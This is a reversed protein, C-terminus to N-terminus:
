PKKKNARKKGYVHVEIPPQLVEGYGPQPKWDFTQAFFDARGSHEFAVGSLEADEGPALFGSADGAGLIVDQNELLIAVELRFREAELSQVELERRRVDRLANAYRRAPEGYATVDDHLVLTQLVAERAQAAEMVLAAYEARVDDQAFSAVKATLHRRAQRQSAFDVDVPRRFRPKIWAELDDFDNKDAGGAEIAASVTARAASWRMDHLLEGWKAIAERRDFDPDTLGIHWQALGVDEAHLVKSPDSSLMYVAMIEALYEMDRQEDSGDGEKIAEVYASKFRNEATRRERCKARLYARQEQTMSGDRVVDNAHTSEHRLYEGFITARGVNKAGAYFIITTRGDEDDGATAQAHLVPDTNAVAPGKEDRFEIVGIDEVWGKPFTALLREMREKTMEPDLGELRIDPMRPAREKEERTADPAPPASPPATEAPVAAMAREAEDVAERHLRVGTGVGYGGAAAAGLAGVILNRSAKNRVLDRLQSLAGATKRKARADIAELAAWREQLQPVIMARVEDIRTRPVEPHRDFYAEIEEVIDIQQMVSFTPEREPLRETIPEEELHHPPREM